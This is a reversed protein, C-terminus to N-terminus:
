NFETFLLLALGCLRIVTFGVMQMLTFGIRINKGFPNPIELWVPIADFWVGKELKLFFLDWFASMGFAIAFSKLSFLEVGIHQAAVPVVAYWMLWFADTYKVLLPSDKNKEGWM